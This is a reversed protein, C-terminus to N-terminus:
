AFRDLTVAKSDRCVGEQEDGAVMVELACAEGRVRFIEVSPRRAEATPGVAPRSVKPGSDSYPQGSHPKATVSAAMM